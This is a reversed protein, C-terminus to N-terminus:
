LCQWRSLWGDLVIVVEGRKSAPSIESEGFVGAAGLMLLVVVAVFAAMGIIEMLINIAKNM